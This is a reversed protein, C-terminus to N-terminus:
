PREPLLANASIATEQIRSRGDERIKTFLPGGHNAEMPLPETSVPGDRLDDGLKALLAASREGNRIRTVTMGDIKAAAIDRSQHTRKPCRAWDCEATVRGL